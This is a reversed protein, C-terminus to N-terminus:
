DQISGKKYVELNEWYIVERIIKLLMIQYKRPLESTEGLWKTAIDKFLNVTAM